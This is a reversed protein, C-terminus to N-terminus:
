EVVARIIEHESLGATDRGVLYGTQIRAQELDGNKLADYVKHVEDKLCREAMTTTLLWLNVLYFLIINIKSAAWQVVLVCAVTIVIVMVWMLLGKSRRARGKNLHKEFFSILKGIFVIPHPIWRPDGIIWDIVMALVMLCVWIGTSM